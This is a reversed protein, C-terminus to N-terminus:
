FRVGVHGALQLDIRTTSDQEGGLGDYASMTDRATVGVVIPGREVNAGLESYWVFDTESDVNLDRFEYTRAGVGVGVFPKLTWDATIAIPYQGQLGVDYQFLDLKADGYQKAETPSWAFSGVVAVYPHVDYKLKLGLLFADKLTDRQDGLGLYAGAYPSIEFKRAPEQAQATGAMGVLAAVVILLKKM